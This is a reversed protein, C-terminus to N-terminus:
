VQTALFISPLICWVATKLTVHLCVLINWISAQEYEYRVRKFILCDEFALCGGEETFSSSVNAPVKLLHLHLSHPCEPAPGRDALLPPQDDVLHLLFIRPSINTFHCITVPLWIHGRSYQIHCTLINLM